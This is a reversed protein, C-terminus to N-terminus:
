KSYHKVTYLWNEHFRHYNISTQAAFAGCTTYRDIDKMEDFHTLLTYSDEAIKQLNNKM